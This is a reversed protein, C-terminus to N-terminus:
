RRENEFRNKLKDRGRKLYVKVTNAPIGLITSIDRISRDESYFLLIITRTPESLADVAEMVPVARDDDDACTDAVDFDQPISAESRRRQWTLYENYAIRYLWTAFNSLGRFSRVGLYAKLFTEQALDDTLMADGKTLNLLFRRVQPSYIEVVRGFAQRNDALACQSLLSLELIKQRMAM